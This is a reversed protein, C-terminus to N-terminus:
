RFICVGACLGGLLLINKSCGSVLKLPNSPM